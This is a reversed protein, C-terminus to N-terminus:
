KLQSLNCPPTPHRYTDQPISPRLISQQNSGQSHGLSGNSPTEGTNSGVHANQELTFTQGLSATSSRRSPSGNANLPLKESDFDNINIPEIPSNQYRLKKAFFGLLAGFGTGVLTSLSFYGIEIVDLEIVPISFAKLAVILAPFFFYSLSLGALAGLIIFGNEKLRPWVRERLFFKINESTFIRDNGDILDSTEQSSNENRNIM